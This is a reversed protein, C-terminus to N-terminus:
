KSERSIKAITTHSLGLRESIAVKPIGSAILAM